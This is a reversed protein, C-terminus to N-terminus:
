AALSGLQWYTLSNLMLVQQVEFIRAALSGLQQAELIWTMQSSSDFQRSSFSGLQQSHDVNDFDQHPPDLGVNLQEGLYKDFTVHHQLCDDRLFDSAISATSTSTTSSTLGFGHSAAMTFSDNVFVTDDIVRNSIVKIETGLSFM